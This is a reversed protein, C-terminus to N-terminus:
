VLCQSAYKLWKMRSSVSTLCWLSYMCPHFNPIHYSLTLIPNTNCHYFPTSQVHLFLWYCFQMCHFHLLPCHCIFLAPSYHGIVIPIKMGQVETWQTVPPVDLGRFDTGSIGLPERWLCCFTFWCSVLLWPEPPFRSSFHFINPQEAHQWTVSICTNSIRIGTILYM